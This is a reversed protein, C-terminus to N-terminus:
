LVATNEWLSGLLKRVKVGTPRVVSTGRRTEPHFVAFKSPWPNDIISERGSRKKWKRAGSLAALLHTAHM